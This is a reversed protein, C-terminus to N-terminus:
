GYGLRISHRCADKSSDCGIAYDCPLGLRCITKKISPYTVDIDWVLADNEVNANYALYQDMDTQANSNPEFYATFQATNNVKGGSLKGDIGMRTEAITRDGFSTSNDPQFGNLTVYQDFLGKCRVRFIVNASTLTKTNVTM